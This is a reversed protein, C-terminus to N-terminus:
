LREGLTACQCQVAMCWDSAPLVSWSVCFWACVGSWESDVGHVCQGRAPPPNANGHRASGFHRECPALRIQLRNTCGRQQQLREGLTAHPCQVARCWDSVPLVSWSVCFWACVGSWESDVGHVCQGRAPPPNANGHRASGFHWRCPAVRIQLRNTCGRISSCANVWPPMSVSSLGASIQLLCCVGLFVFGRVCVAGSRTSVTCANAGPRPRTQMATGPQDLTGDVLPWVSKFVTLAGRISSCANVWPPMSVSSLGAGIQFLCCVGLFVFGRVCVAGSRTSVTCANAGPRPRSPMATGPQDLTGDVLPWVSIFVTLAGRISSCANVWPPMSVSSLGAGIQFLCCVGLFVFGRVCVAGSRTSVTCANAGPRPRSQMATGPQDLTGDVLPWVSIFVTLAGRISSCANVWPPMRVSSLGAGIQFLCCVGLFVFGRVCVAGSRTSVTCANAGPRPRSPMATGPQDLTGDVLPWVSIFVTLAGRISSCANVWPPMSVSSLGAGIQFLCCVGLFVFGRVCVAGSRTSVTCANAGPRPRSPMATGPQDLTGDVLPWVSIFVTLAGRISSCANVWPPMSVSSLGAGIQFLCCVGLFVFGRVCVAGSRTSVTCANAGPRPRSPMATGPQDLTGDVLPWVSIFVTLAGRISSCANVWPPMRVSSLGAGIQFLCCVGLFVFGRVCVAGSRTSVTCANAGPRPRSPMATGPQDLTGDVLPWVSIFVTLAGRISSCANVWPPMSVSSLGAGIQFLCCVGLVCLVVCM